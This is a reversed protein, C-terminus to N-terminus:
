LRRCLTEIEIERSHYCYCCLLMFIMTLGLLGLLRVISSKRKLTYKRSVRKFMVQYTIRGRQEEESDEVTKDEATM